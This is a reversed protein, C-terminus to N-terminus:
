CVRRFGQMYVRVLFCKPRVIDTKKDISSSTKKSIPHLAPPFHDLAPPFQHLAPPFARPNARVPTDSDPHHQPPLLVMHHASVPNEQRPQDLPPPVVTVESSSPHVGVVAM